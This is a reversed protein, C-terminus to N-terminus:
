VVTFPKKSVSSKKNVIFVPKGINRKKILNGKLRFNKYPTNYGLLSKM